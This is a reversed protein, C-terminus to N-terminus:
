LAGNVDEVSRKWGPLVSRIGCHFYGAGKVGAFVLLLEHSDPVACNVVERADRRQYGTTIYVARSIKSQFRLRFGCPKTKLVRVRHPFQVAVIVAATGVPM